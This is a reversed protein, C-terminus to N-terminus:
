EVVENDFCYTTRACFMAAPICFHGDGEDRLHALKVLHLVVRCLLQLVAVCVFLLLFGMFCAAARCVFRLEFLCSLVVYFTYGFYVSNLVACLSYPAVCFIVCCFM